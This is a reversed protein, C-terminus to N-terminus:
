RYLEEFGFITGLLFEVPGGDSHTIFCHNYSWLDDDWLRQRMEEKQARSVSEDFKGTETETHNHNVRIWIGYGPVPRHELRVAGSPYFLWNGNEDCAPQNVASWGCMGCNMTRKHQLDFCICLMNDYDCQPCFLRETRIGTIM